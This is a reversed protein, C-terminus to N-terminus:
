KILTIGGIIPLPRDKGQVVNIIGLIAFILSAVSVLPLLFIGILVIMLAVSAAHGIVWFLLLILQQNAHYRASADNQTEPLVLPIFFILPVIYGLIGFIMKVDATPKPSHHPTSM